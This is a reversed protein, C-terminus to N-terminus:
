DKKYDVETSYLNLIGFYSFIIRIITIILRAGQPSLSPSLYLHFSFFKIFSLTTNHSDITEKQNTM